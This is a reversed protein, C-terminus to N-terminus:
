FHFKLNLGGFFNADTPGPLYADPLQNAFVMLYNQEGTINQVGAFADLELRNFLQHRFGLKGNILKYKESKYVGDSTIPQVDRYNYTANAYLGIKTDMDIGANFTVPPVGAVSQGSYDTEIVATRSANLTQFKFDKYRFKSYALNVFPRLLTISANRDNFIAYRVMAEIGKNVQSGGNAVYSYATTNANLPVAIATMKDKFDIQFVALSWTLRDAFLAGKSGVEFQNGMEPKLGLNLQGTAPIFFYSSVPAKYGKSYSAYFSLQRNVVKNIALHPSLMDKYKQSFQTPNTNTAVYFRDNLEIKMTSYGVGATISLDKPLSLTWETFLSTTGTITYQNSRAAGIIWYASPNTPNAVMNYGITQAQQRQTEVGTISSLTGSGATTQFGFTSRLGYNVPIKDTWGGASSANTTAGSGFVTTTNSLHNNFQYNHGVGARFSIVESHANRKIYDPNGSYDKNQYQTITLEGAREDYSNSHGFYTNISQKDNLQFDGSFNVFKKTSATHVMFGDSKQYGYNLLISSKDTATEFHTTYRRLGYSGVMVDQGISTKGKEPKITKLNVVGAIALGYLTGSPGKIVEVNGISGFDLDDMVTIGEADTVPIGNLYVKSGQNDFNSSIGNTGRAGNGYGRINFQQGGSVSRRQMTVGPINTNIADDLFIGPGRKLEQQSLKSISAPQYLLSKNQASTATIEVNELNNVLPLLVISLDQGCSNLKVTRTEYGTLSISLSQGPKCEMQFSGDKNSRVSPGSTYTILAGSLPGNTNGDLIKGSLTTQAFSFVAMAMFALGLMIQKM